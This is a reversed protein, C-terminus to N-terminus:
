RQAYRYLFAAMEQRTVANGPRFTGDPYGDGVGEAKFWSIPTYFLHGPRVDRFGPNPFPGPAAGDLGHLYASAAARDTSRTPRFTGDPFGQGVGSAM